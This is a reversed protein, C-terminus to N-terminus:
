PHPAVAVGRYLRNSAGAAQLTTPMVTSPMTTLDDFYKVIANSATVPSVSTIATTAILVVGNGSPHAALGRVGLTLGNNFTNGAALTWTGGSSTWKQIGGGSAPAREDALYLTDPSDGGAILDLLVFGYYSGAGVSGTGTLTTTVPPPAVLTTTPPPAGAGIRFVGGTGQNNTCFLQDFFIQCVRTSGSATEISTSTSAGSLAYWVGRTTSNGNGGAWFQGSNNSVVSRVNNADFATMGFTTQTNINGDAAIIGVNRQQTATNAANAVGATGVASSYGALTVITGDNSLALAGDSDATGSLTLPRPNTGAATPLALTRYVTGDTEFREEIFVAQAANTLGTGSGDGIRVDMFTKVCAQLADCRTGNNQFCSAGVARPPFMQVGAVCMPNLCENPNSPTDSDDAISHVGGMGDCVNKQCDGTTQTSVATGDPPEVIGCLGAASCTRTHCESDPGGPCELANFCQVCAGAGDCKTGSNQSCATGSNLPPNSPVGATCVSDLCQNTTPPKDNDDIVTEIDGSGNCQDHHCDGAVDNAPVLTGVPVNNFGCVGGTMCVRVQCVNPAMPCDTDQLCGVCGGSGNCMLSPGCSTGANVFNNSPTGNTCVDTTCPNGDAPLDNDDVVTTTAGNMCVDKHCDGTPGQSVLTGDQTNTSGCM